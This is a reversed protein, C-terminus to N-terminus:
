VPEREVRESHMLSDWWVLRRRSGSGSSFSYAHDDNPFHPQVFQRTSIELRISGTIFKVIPLGTPRTRGNTYVAPLVSLYRVEIETLLKRGTASRPKYQESPHTHADTVILRVGPQYWFTWPDILNDSKSCDQRLFDFTAHCANDRIDPLSHGAMAVMFKQRV